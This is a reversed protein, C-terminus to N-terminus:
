KANVKKELVSKNDQYLNKNSLKKNLYYFTLLMMCILLILMFSLASAVPWDRPINRVKYTIVQGIYMSTQSGVVQPVIYSGIAPIFVLITGAFIGPKTLPLTVKLFATLPKAGLDKAVELLRFDMKEIVTYLPLIMYPLYVYVTVLLVALDTRLIRIPSDILNINLLFTNLMGHPALFIRWAFVRIILNTWFPIIILMLLINKVNESSRAIFYATPYGLIICIITTFIALRISNYFAHVYRFSLVEKYADLTFIYDVGLITSRFFSYLFIIIFPILFFISLWILSPFTLLWSQMEQQKEHHQINKKIKNM